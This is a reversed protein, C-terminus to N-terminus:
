RRIVGTRGAPGECATRYVGDVCKITGPPHVVAAGAVPPRVVAVGGPEAVPKRVAAAGNPGVCGARYRGEVCEVASASFSTVALILGAAALSLSRNTM